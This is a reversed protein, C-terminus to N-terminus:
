QFYFFSITCSTASPPYVGGSFIKLDFACFEPLRAGANTGSVPGLQAKRDASKKLHHKDESRLRVCLRKLNKNGITKPILQLHAEIQLVHRGALKNSPLKRRMDGTSSGGWNKFIGTSKGSRPGTVIEKGRRRKEFSVQLQISTLSVEGSSPIVWQAM